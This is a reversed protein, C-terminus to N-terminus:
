EVIVKGDLNCIYCNPLKEKIEKLKAKDKEYLRGVLVGEILRPPLGFFIASERDTTLPTIPTSLYYELFRKDAFYKLVSKDYEKNFFDAKSLEKAYDSEMNLIFGIQVKDSALSPMFRIEKTQEARWSWVNETNNLEILEQEIKGYPIIKYNEKAKASRVCYYVVSAGSYFNIYDKLLM